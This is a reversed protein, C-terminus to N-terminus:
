RTCPWRCGRSALSPRALSDARAVIPVCACVLAPRERPRVKQTRRNFGKWLFGDPRAHNEIVDGVALELEQGRKDQWTTRSLYSRRGVHVSHTRAPPCRAWRQTCARVERPTYPAWARLVERQGGGYYFPDDLSRARFAADVYRLQM